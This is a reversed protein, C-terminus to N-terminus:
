VEKEPMVPRESKQLFCHVNNVENGLLKRQGVKIRTIKYFEEETPANQNINYGIYMGELRFINKLVFPNDIDIYCHAESGIINTAGVLSYTTGALFLGKVEVIKDVTEDGYGDTKVSYLTLKDKLVPKFNM